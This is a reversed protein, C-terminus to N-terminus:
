VPQAETRGSSAISFECNSVISCQFLGDVYCFYLREDIYCLDQKIRRLLFVIKMLITFIPLLHKDNDISYKSLYLAANITSVLPM